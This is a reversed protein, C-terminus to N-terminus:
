DYYINGHEDLGKLTELTISELQEIAQCFSYITEWEDRVVRTSKGNSLDIQWETDYFQRKNILKVKIVEPHSHYFDDMYAKEKIKEEELEREWEEMFNDQMKTRANSVDELQKNSKLSNFLNKITTFHKM